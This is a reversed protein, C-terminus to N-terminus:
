RFQSSEKFKFFVAHRLKKESNDMEQTKTTAEAIEESPSETSNNCASVFFFIATCYFLTSIKM